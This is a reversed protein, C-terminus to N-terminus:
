FRGFGDKPESEITLEEFRIHFKRAFPKLREYIDERVILIGTYNQYIPLIQEQPLLVFRPRGASYFYRGCWPCQRYSGKKYSRVTIYNKAGVVMWDSATGEDTSGVPAFLAHERVDESGLLDWISRHVIARSLPYITCTRGRGLITYELHINQPWQYLRPDGCEKHFLHENATQWEKTVHVEANTTDGMYYLRSM